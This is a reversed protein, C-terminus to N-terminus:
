FPGALVVAVQNQVLFSLFLQGPVVLQVPSILVRGLLFIPKVRHLPASLPVQPAHDVQGFLDCGHLFSSGKQDLFVFDHGFLVVVLQEQPGESRTVPKLVDIVVEFFVHTPCLFLALVVVKDSDSLPSALFIPYESPVSTLIVDRGTLRSLIEVVFFFFKFAQGNALIGNPCHPLAPLSGPHDPRLSDKSFHGVIELLELTRM